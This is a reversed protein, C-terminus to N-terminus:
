EAARQKQVEENFCVELSRYDTNTSNVSERMEVVVRSMHENINAVKDIVMMGVSSLYEMM